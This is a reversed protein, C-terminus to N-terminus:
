KKCDYVMDCYMGSGWETEQFRYELIKLKKSGKNLCHALADMKADEYAANKCRCKFPDCSFEECNVERSKIREAQSIEPIILAFLLAIIVKCM